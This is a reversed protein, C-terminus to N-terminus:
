LTKDDNNVSAQRKCRPPGALPLSALSRARVTAVAIV